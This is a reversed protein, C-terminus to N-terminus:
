DETLEASFTHLSTSLINITLTYNGSEVIDQTNSYQQEYKQNNIYFRIYPNKHFTYTGFGELTYNPPLKDTVFTSYSKVEIDDLRYNSNNKINIFVDYNPDQNNNLQEIKNEIIQECSFLLLVSLLLFSKKM